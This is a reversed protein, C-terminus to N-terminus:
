MDGGINSDLEQEEAESETAEDEIDFMAFETRSKNTLNRAEDRDMMQAIEKMLSPTSPPVGDDAWDVETTDEIRHGKAKDVKYPVVPSLKKCHGEYETPM